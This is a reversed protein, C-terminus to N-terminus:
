QLSSVKVDVGWHGYFKISARLANESQGGKISETTPIYSVTGVSETRTRRRFDLRSKM